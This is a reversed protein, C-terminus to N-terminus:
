FRKETTTKELDFKRECTVNGLLYQSFQISGGEVEIYRSMNSWVSIVTNQNWCFCLGPQSNRLIQSDFCIFCTPAIRKNKLIKDITVVQLVM